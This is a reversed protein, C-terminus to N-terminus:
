SAKNKSMAFEAELPTLAIYTFTFHPILEPFNVQMGDDLYEIRESHNQLYFWKAVITIVIEKDYVRIAISDPETLEM